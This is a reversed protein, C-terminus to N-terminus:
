GIAEDKEMIDYLHFVHLSSVPQCRESPGIGKFDM